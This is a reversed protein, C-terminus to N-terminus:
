FFPPHNKTKNPPNSPKPNPHYTPEQKPSTIRLHQHQPSDHKKQVLFFYFLFFPLNQFTSFIRLLFGQFILFPPQHVYLNVIVTLQM